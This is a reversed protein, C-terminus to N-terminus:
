EAKRVGHHLAIEESNWTEPLDAEFEVSGELTLRKFSM